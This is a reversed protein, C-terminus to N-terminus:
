PILTRVAVNLSDLTEPWPDRRAAQLTLDVMDETVIHYKERDQTPIKLADEAAARFTDFELRSPFRLKAHRKSNSLIIYVTIPLDFM